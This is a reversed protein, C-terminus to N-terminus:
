LKLKWGIWSWQMCFQQHTRRRKKTYSNKIQKKERCHNQVSFAEFMRYKTFMYIHVFPFSLSHFHFAFALNDMTRDSYGHGYMFNFSSVFVWIISETKYCFPVQVYTRLNWYIWGSFSHTVSRISIIIKWTSQLCNCRSMLMLCEYTMFLLKFVCVGM